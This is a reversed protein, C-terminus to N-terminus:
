SWGIDELVSNLYELDKQAYWERDGPRPAEICIPGEYGSNKLVTLYERHNIEGESLATPFRSSDGMRISNKLHVYYIKDKLTAITKSISPIGSFYIANGYDLNIGVSPKDILNVLKETTEPLDHLYCMHTEFAFKFDLDDALDGLIKYGEAAWKWQEESAVFSGHCTYSSYPIDEAPNKLTGTFANCVTLELKEAALKYFEVADELEKKRVAPDLNTLDPGPAGFLTYKLGSAEVAEALADLYEDVGEDVGSRKRRFEIGDFGWDAAKKCMEMITQGQECYNVHMIVAPKM